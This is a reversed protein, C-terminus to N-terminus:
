VIHKAKGSEDQNSRNLNTFYSLSEGSVAEAYGLVAKELLKAGCAIHELSSYEDPHHSLGDRSPIFILGTPCLGAMNMADHGAGSVMRTFATGDEECCAALYGAVAEDLLVPDEDSLVRTTLKLGRSAVLSRFIDLLRNHVAQRSEKNTGRIDLKLNVWDPIVNMAGPHVDCVGATAVTGYKTEALAARELGTVIEAAGLLADKRLNMPTTGSHSAKGEITVDLRTPAAIGTAIGISLGSNELVPGQEIHLEFFAKLEKGNRRASEIGAFDLGVGTLAESFSIGEKDLLKELRKADLKGAMAKSGVTSVGFRASEECAFSILEISHRTVIGKENLSRVLELGAAVGLAGDYRGGQYVTDLHSGCAVAPLDPQSGERRAIVNGCADVRVAMGEAKCSRIVYQQAQWHEKSFGLRTIGQAETAGIENIEQLTKELRAINM